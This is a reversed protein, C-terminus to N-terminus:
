AVQMWLTVADRVDQPMEEQRTIDRGFELVAHRVDRYQGLRFLSEFYWLVLSNVKWGRDLAARFWDAAEAWQEARYLLRGIAVWAEASNPDQQLYAKYTSIARSRNLKELEGDLVGTFAYDDYFKALALTLTADGPHKTRALEIRALKAAFEREVKAIATAAQVRITNNGDALAAKFAGAFRPSFRSTMKALARRKQNESGLRMVDAFPMVSYASPNEDLGETISDYITQADTTQDTPFITEYWERFHHSRGRFIVTFLFGALAGVAGFIGTVSAVIALLALHQVDLGKRYNAYAILAVVASIFLHLAVPLTPSVGAGLFLYLNFGHAAILLLAVVLFLGNTATAPTVRHADHIDEPNLIGEVYQAYDIASPNASKM